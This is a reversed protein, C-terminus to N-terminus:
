NGSQPVPTQTQPISSSVAPCNQLRQRKRLRSQAKGGGSRRGAQSGSYYPCNPNGAGWAPGTGQAAGAQRGGGQAQASGIGGLTLAASLLLALFSLLWASKQM